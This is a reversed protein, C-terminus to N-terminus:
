AQARPGRWRRLAGLGLLGAGFMWAAAPLPVVELNGEAFPLFGDAFVTLFSRGAGVEPFALVDYEVGAFAATADIGLYYHSGIRSVDPVWNFSPDSAEVLYTAVPLGGTGLLEITLSLADVPTADFDDVLATADFTVSGSLIALPDGTGVLTASGRVPLTTAAQAAGVLLLLALAFVLRLM